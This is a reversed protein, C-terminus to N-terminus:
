SQKLGSQYYFKYWDLGSPYYCRGVITLM